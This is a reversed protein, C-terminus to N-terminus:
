DEVDPGVSTPAGGDRSQEAQAITLRVLLLAADSSRVGSVRLAQGLTSPKAVSLKEVAETSLGEVARYDFDEPIRVRESRGMRAALRAEKAEYGAYRADLEATEIWDVPFSSDLYPFFRRAGGVVRHDRLVDVVAEGVHPALAPDVDAEEHTIRRQRMLEGIEEIGTKRRELRERRAESALGLGVALPTLRLDATDHRLSLRREARSTFMRYPESVGLTVLDDVLVGIYAEARSLVVPEERSLFRAANIGAVIGQAAAEEYGSSGNTQGAVFLGGILRSQLSPALLSPDLYDYEVAYGPRVMEASGLGPLTRIFRLQTEEPLSSSLGNLYMEDTGLGEPEVFVQHRERDPFRAVKDEISPCYRPGRGVIVGSFLPSRAMDDRIVRHTRENTYTVWCPVSPRDARDNMFSFSRHDSEGDQRLMEAVDLSRFRVRAPTGTKLRGVKFGRKRLADGLGRAAREGLRGGEGRWEGIFLRAEMFTGTTLVVARAGIRSGRETQIGEVRRGASDTILDVVTDMFISLGRQAEVARRALSAYLAKDAQARPAQVAPGRSRNLLRYQLMSADILLGMEGGLADVERVLNGKSLGGIAPNCSMRGITEPDQTVMLTNKGLRALALAAEIGAHGGGVVIADYDM